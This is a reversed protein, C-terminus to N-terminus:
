FWVASCFWSIFKFFYIKATM